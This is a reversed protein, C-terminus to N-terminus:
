KSDTNIINLSEIESKLNTLQGIMNQFIETKLIVLSQHNPGQVIILKEGEVLGLKERAEVPIVIQGKAGVTATGYFKM